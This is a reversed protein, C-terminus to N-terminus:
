TMFFFTAWSIMIDTYKKNDVYWIADLDPDDTQLSFFNNAMCFDGNKKKLVYIYWASLGLIRIIKKNNNINCWWCSRGRGRWRTQGEPKKVLIYHIKIISAKSKITSSNKKKQNNNNNSPLNFIPLSAM